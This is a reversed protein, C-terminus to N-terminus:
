AARQLGYDILRQHTPSLQRLLGLCARWRRQLALPPQLELLELRLLWEEPFDVLRRDCDSLWCQDVADTERRERVEAYFAMLAEAAPQAAAKAGADDVAAPPTASHHDPLGAAFQELVEGLQAFSSAVFLQPQERTIDYPYDIAALGLPLKRVRRDDRCNVCEGLSSLLGAGFLRYDRLEGILGYEVTWWHLRSLLAAPTPTEIAAIARSLQREAGAIEVASASASETLVSLHRVARYVAV